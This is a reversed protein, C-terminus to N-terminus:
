SDLSGLLVDVYEDGWDERAKEEKEFALYNSVTELGVEVSSRESKTADDLAQTAKPESPHNPSYWQRKVWGQEDATVQIKAGSEFWIRVGSSEITERAETDIRSINPLNTEGIADM